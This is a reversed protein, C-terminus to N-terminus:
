DGGKLARSLGKTIMDDTDELQKKLREIEAAQEAIKATLRAVARHIENEIDLPDM